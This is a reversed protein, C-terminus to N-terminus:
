PTRSAPAVVVRFGFYEDRDYPFLWHRRASCCSWADHCWASGRLVRFPDQAPGQPNEAESKGYYDEGYWDQCWQWVNGHMDYLGSANPEKQGVPHTSNSNLWAVRALGAETDGSHYQTTTGARCGYEWEAETPLRVTQKTQESLKRCFAQSDDWSVEEVPNDKGKFHSPSAGTVARYQEQTAVFKGMYFPKTLTVAHAPKEDHGAEKYQAQASQFKAEADALALTSHHWHLGGLLGVGAAGTMVLARALSFRPRHRKRLAELLIMGVLVLLLGGGVALIAQGAVIQKRFGEDDVPVPEPTGMIFKGAPILVLELKVGGGLDLTKAAPLNVRRAYEAVSERGDWLPWSEAATEGASAALALWLSLSATLLARM